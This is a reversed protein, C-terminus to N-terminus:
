LRGAVNQPKPASEARLLADLLTVWSGAFDGRKEQVAPLLCPLSPWESLQLMAPHQPSQLHSQQDPHNVQLPQTGRTGHDPLTRPAPACVCLQQCEDREEWCSFLAHPYVLFAPHPFGLGRFTHLASSCILVRYIISLFLDAPGERALKEKRGEGKEM